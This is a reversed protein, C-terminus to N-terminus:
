GRRKALLMTFGVAAAGILIITGTSPGSDVVVVPAELSEPSPLSRYIEATERQTEAVAAWEEKLQKSRREIDSLAADHARQSEQLAAVREEDTQGIVVREPRLVPKTYGPLPFAHAGRM